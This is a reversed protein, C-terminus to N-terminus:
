AFDPERHISKTIYVPVTDPLFGASPQDYDRSSKFSEPATGSTLTSVAGSAASHTKSSHNIIRFIVLLSGFLQAVDLDFGVRGAILLLLRLRVSGYTAIMQTWREADVMATAFAAMFVLRSASTIASSEVFVIALRGYFRQHSAGLVEVTNRHLM